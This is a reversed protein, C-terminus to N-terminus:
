KQDSLGECYYIPLTFLIGTNPKSLDGIVAKIEQTTPVVQDDRVVFLLLKTSEKEENSLIQRLAGFMPLDEMNALSEGMGHADIITGGHIGKEALEKLLRQMLEVRKLILILLQM